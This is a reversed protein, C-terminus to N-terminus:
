PGIYPRFYKGNMSSDALVSAYTTGGGDVTGSAVSTGMDIGGSSGEQYIVYPTGNPVNTTTLTFRITDVGAVYSSKDTVLSATMSGVTIPGASSGWFAIIIASVLAISSIILAISLAVILTRRKL